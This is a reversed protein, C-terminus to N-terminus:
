RIERKLVQRQLLDEESLITQEVTPYSLRHVPNSSTFPYTTHEHYPKSRPILPTDRTRAYNLSHIFSHVLPTPVADPCLHNDGSRSVGLQAELTARAHESPWNRGGCSIVIPSFVGRLRIRGFRLRLRSRVRSVEPEGGWEGSEAILQCYKGFEQETM